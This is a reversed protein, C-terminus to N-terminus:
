YINISYIPYCVISQFILKLFNNTACIAFFIFCHFVFQFIFCHFSPVFQFIVDWRVRIYKAPIELLLYVFRCGDIEPFFISDTSFHKCINRYISLRQLNEYFYSSWIEIFFIEIFLFDKYTEMSIDIEDIEPFFISINASIEIFLYDKWIEM